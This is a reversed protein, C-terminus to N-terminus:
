ARIPETARWVMLSQDLGAALTPYQLTWGLRAKTEDNAAGSPQALMAQRTSGVLLSQAFGPPQMPVTVGLASALADVFAAPTVPRDDVVNLVAGAPRVQLALQTARAADLAHIWNARAHHSGMLVLRGRLLADRLALLSPSEASYVFGYRLICAALGADTVLTEAHRAADIFPAIPPEDDGHDQPDGGLFSFSGQIFFETGLERAAELLAMTGGSVIPVYADWDRVLQPAQHPHTPALNVVITSKSAAIASRLEGARTLSPYVPLAGDGRLQGAEVSNSVTATVKHGGSALLRVLARGLPTTGGNVFVSM